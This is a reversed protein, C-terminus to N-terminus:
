ARAGETHREHEFLPGIDRTMLHRYAQTLVAARHKLLGPSLHAALYKITSEVERWRAPIFLGSECVCVPCEPSTYARRFPRDSANYGMEAKLAHRGIANRQGIHGYYELAHLISRSLAATM